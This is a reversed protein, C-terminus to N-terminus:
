KRRTVHGIEIHDFGTNYQDFLMAALLAFKTDEFEDQETVVTGGSEFVDYVEIDYEDAIRRVTNEIRSLKM